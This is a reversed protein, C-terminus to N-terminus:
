ELSLLLAMKFKGEAKVSHLGNKEFRFNEGERIKYSKGEYIITAKGELAFFLADGPAKHESLMCGDDFALIMFKMGEGSALDINVISGEEYEILNKLDFVENAKLIGNMKSGKEFLIETYILGKEEVSKIGCFTGEHLFIINQSNMQLKCNGNTGVNFLGTGYAGIYIVPNEYAESSIDTGSGLSFHHVMSKNGIKANTSITMGSKPVHKKSISYVGTQM